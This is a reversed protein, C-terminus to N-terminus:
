GKLVRGGEAPRTTFCTAAIGTAAQYRETITAAIAEARDAHVLTVTCGGFGGGTMRSGIVGGEPGIEAALEVLKDIEPVTIEFDDRMTAHSAYMLEGATKWDSEAIARCLQGPRETDGVVHRARKFPIPPVDGKRGALGESTIDRLSAIGLAAVAEECQQRREAYEGGTLEHKVNSNIILVTVDPNTFPAMEPQQSRCDLLMLHDAKCLASSFQDMIGCPMGAGQHEAEQCLLARKTGDLSEGALTEIALALSVELAASSSLGGGLPVTSDIVGDFAPVDIGAGRYADIVGRVYKAWAPLEDGDPTLPLESEEGMTVSYLRATDGARKSAAVTTQREIAMPLVFGDNYDTHEGILNVRGPAATVCQPTSGYRETFVRETEAALEALPKATELAM